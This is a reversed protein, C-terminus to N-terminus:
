RPRRSIGVHQAAAHLSSFPEEAVDVFTGTRNFRGNTRRQQLQWSNGRQVLRLSRRDLEKALAALDTTTM